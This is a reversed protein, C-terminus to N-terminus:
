YSPEMIWMIDNHLGIPMGNHNWYFKSWLNNNHYMNFGRKDKTWSFATPSKDSEVVSGDRRLLINTKCFNDPCDATQHWGGWTWYIWFYRIKFLKNVYNKPKLSAKSFKNKFLKSVLQPREFPGNSLSYLLDERRIINNDTAYHVHFCSGENVLGSYNLINKFQTIGHSITVKSGILGGTLGASLDGNHLIATCTDKVIKSEESNAARQMFARNMISCEFGIWAKRLSNVKEVSLKFNNTIYNFHEPQCYFGPQGGWHCPINIDNTKNLVEVMKDVDTFSDDDAFIYYDADPHKKQNLINIHKDAVRINSWDLWIFDKKLVGPRKGEGLVIVELDHTNSKIGGASLMELRHPYKETGLIYAVIKAMKM